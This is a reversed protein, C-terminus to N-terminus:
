FTAYILFVLNEVTMAAPTSADAHQEGPGRRKGLGCCWRRLVAARIYPMSVRSSRSLVPKHPKSPNVPNSPSAPRLRRWSGEGCRWRGAHVSYSRSERRKVSDGPSVGKPDRIIAITNARSHSVGCLSFSGLLAHHPRTTPEPSTHAGCRCLMDYIRQYQDTIRDFPVRAPGTGGRMIDPAAYAARRRGGSPQRLKTAAKMVEGEMISKGVEALQVFGSDRCNRAQLDELTITREEADQRGGHHAYVRSTSSWVAHSYTNISSVTLSCVMVGSCCRM